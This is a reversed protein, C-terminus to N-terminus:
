FYPLIGYSLIHVLAVPNCSSPKGHLGWGLDAQSHLARGPTPVLVLLGLASGSQNM